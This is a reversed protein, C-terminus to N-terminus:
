LRARHVWSDIQGDRMAAIRDSMSLAEEQDHTVLIFTIKLERQLAKLEIQMHKRLRYDLASMPEDLLLVYPKNVM